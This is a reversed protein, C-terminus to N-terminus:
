DVAENKEEADIAADLKDLAKLTAKFLKDLQTRLRAARQRQEERGEHRDRALQREFAARAVGLDLALRIAQYHKAVRGSRGSDQDAFSLRQVGVRGGRKLVSLVLHPTPDCFWAFRRIWASQKLNLAWIETRLKSAALGHIQPAFEPWAAALVDDAVLTDFEEKIRDGIISYDGLCLDVKRAGAVLDKLGQDLAALGDEGLQTADIDGPVMLLVEAAMGREDMTRLTADVGHGWRIGTDRARVVALEVDPGGAAELAAKTPQLSPGHEDCCVVIVAPETGRALRIAHEIPVSETTEFSVMVLCVHRTEKM